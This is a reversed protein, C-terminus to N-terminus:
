IQRIRTLIKKYEGHGRQPTAHPYPGYWACTFLALHNSRWTGYLHCLFRRLGWILGTAGKPGERREM